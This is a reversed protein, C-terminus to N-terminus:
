GIAGSTLVWAFGRGALIRSDLGLYERCQNHRSKKIANTHISIAAQALGLAGVLSSITPKNAVVLNAQTTHISDVIKIPM